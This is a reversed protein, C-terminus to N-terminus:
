YAPLQDLMARSVRITLNILVITYVAMAVTLAIKVTRSFRPNSWVLPLGFPGVVVFLMLLVFWINHYWRPDIPKQM